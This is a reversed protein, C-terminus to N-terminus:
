GSFMGEGRTQPFSDEIFGTKPSLVNPSQQDFLHNGVFM